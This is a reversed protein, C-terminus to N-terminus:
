YPGILPLTLAPLPRGVEVPSSEDLSAYRM